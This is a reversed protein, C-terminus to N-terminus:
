ASPVARRTREAKEEIITAVRESRSYLDLTTTYALANSSFAERQPSDLMDVLFRNMCEQKFPSPVVMGANALRVHKAFGCDDTTLVPLGHAMSELIVGGTNDSYAPHVLLDAALFFRQIDLCPPLLSVRDTVGLLAALRAFPRTREEGVAVLKTKRRLEMPLAALARFARDVGKGRWGVGVMLLLLENTSRLFERRLETRARASGSVPKRDQCIGPPLPHFREGSTRYQDMYIRQHAPNLLLIETNSRPDFVARELAVYQQFRNTAWYYPGLRCTYKHRARDQYCPDGAYYLDLGPMKNFGVVADFAGGNLCPRVNKVFSTCRSHNTFGEGPLIKVAVGDPVPGTWEMTFVTIAHGRQRCTQAIELCDRQLGGYPFYKFLCFAFKV